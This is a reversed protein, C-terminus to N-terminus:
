GAMTNEQKTLDSAVSKARRLAFWAQYCERHIWPNDGPESPLIVSTDTEPTGCYVCNELQALELEGDLGKMSAFGGTRKKPKPAHEACFWRGLRGKNVAAGYGITGPEGCIVCPHHFHGDIDVFPNRM